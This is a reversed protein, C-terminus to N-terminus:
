QRLTFIGFQLDITYASEAGSQECDGKVKLFLHRPRFTCRAQKCAPDVM